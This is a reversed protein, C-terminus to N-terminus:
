LLRLAERPAVADGFILALDDVLDDPHAAEIRVRRSPSASLDETPVHWRGTTDDGAISLECGVYRRGDHALGTMDIRAALLASVFADVSTPSAGEALLAAAARPRDGARLLEVTRRYAGLTVDIPAIPTHRGGDFGTRQLLLAPANVADRAYLHHAHGQIVHEAVWEGRTAIFFTIGRSRHSVVAIAEPEALVQLATLQEDNLAAVNGAAEPATDVRLGVPPRLGLTSCLTDITVADLATTM